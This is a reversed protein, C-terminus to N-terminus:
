CAITSPKSLRKDHVCLKARTLSTEEAQLLSYWVEYGVTFLFM